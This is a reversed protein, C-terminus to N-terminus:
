NGGARKLARAVRANTRRQLENQVSISYKWLLDDPPPKQSLFLVNLRQQDAILERDPLQPLEQILLQYLREAGQAKGQDHLLIFDERLDTHRWQNALYQRIVMVSCLILVAVFALFFQHRKLFRM